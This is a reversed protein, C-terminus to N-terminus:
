FSEEVDHPPKRDKPKKKNGQVSNSTASSGDDPFVQNQQERLRQILIEEEVDRPPERSRLNSIEEEVEEYGNRSRGTNDDRSKRHHHKDHHRHHKGHKKDKDDGDKHHRHHHHHRKKPENRNSEERNSGSNSAQKSSAPTQNPPLRSVPRDKGQQQIQYGSADRSLPPTQDRSPGGSAVGDSAERSRSPSRDQNTYGGTIYANSNTFTDSSGSKSLLNRRAEEEFTASSLSTYSKLRRDNDDSSRDSYPQKRWQGIARREKGASGGRGDNDKSSLYTSNNWEARDLTSTSNNKSLGVDSESREYVGFFTRMCLTLERNREAVDVVHNNWPLRGPKVSAEANREFRAHFEARPKFQPRMGNLMLRLAKKCVHTGGGTRAALAATRKADGPYGMAELRHQVEEPALDFRDDFLQAIVEDPGGVEPQHSWAALSCIQFTRHPTRELALEMVRLYNLEHRRVRGLGSLDLGGFLLWDDGEFGLRRAGDHFDELTAWGRAYRDIYLWAKELDFETMVWICELFRGLNTAESSDLQCFELPENTGEAHLEDWIAKAESGCGLKYCAKAFVMYPVLGTGNLDIDLRWARLLAGHRHRLLRVFRRAPTWREGPAIIHQKKRFRQLQYLTVEGNPWASVSTHAKLAEGVAPTTWWHTQQQSGSNTIADVVRGVDGEFGNRAIHEAFHKATVKSCVTYQGTKDFGHFLNHLVNWRGTVWRAFMQVDDECPLEEEHHFKSLVAEQKEDDYYQTEPPPGMRKAPPPTRPTTHMPLRPSMIYPAGEGFEGGGKRYASAAMPGGETEPVHRASQRVFATAHHSQRKGKESEGAKEKKGVEKTRKAQSKECERTHPGEPGQCRTCCVCYSGSPDVLRGCGSECYGDM